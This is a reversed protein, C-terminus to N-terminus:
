SAIILVATRCDVGPTMAARRGEQLSGGASRIFSLERVSQREEPDEQNREEDDDEQRLEVPALRHAKQDEQDRRRRVKQVAPERPAPALDRREARQEVRDRVLEQDRRREDGEDLQPERRRPHDDHDDPALERHRAQPRDGRALADHDRGRAPALRLHRRLDAADRQQDQASRWSINMTGPSPRARPRRRRRARDGPRLVESRNRWRTVNTSPAGDAPARLATRAAPAPPVALDAPRGRPVQDRLADRPPAPLATWDLRELAPCRRSSRRSRRATAPTTPPSACFAARSSRSALMELGVGDLLRRKRQRKKPWPRPLLRSVRAGVRRRARSPSLATRRRAPDARQRPAARALRDRCIRYYALSLEVGLFDHAPTARAGGRDPFAGQRQRDRGRPARPPRFRARRRVADDSWLEEDPRSRSGAARGTPEMRRRMLGPAAGRRRRVRAHRGNRRHRPHPHRRRADRPAGGRRPRRARALDLHRLMLIASLLLATPNARDQGAIDPATGHVAEFIAAEAGLNAGPVLGLGGVLGAALDSVIDGYLNELLLVDFTEPNMVLRMCAADVIRDDADIDPYSEAVRRFCDLFLGDSLKM